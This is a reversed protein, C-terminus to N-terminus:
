KLETRIFPARGEFELLDFDLTKIKETNKYETGSQGTQITILTIGDFLYTGSAQSVKIGPSLESGDRKYVSEQFLGNESYVVKAIKTNADDNYRYWSGVISPSESKGCGVLFLAVVITSIKSV